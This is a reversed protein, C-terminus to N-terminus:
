LVFDTAIVNRRLESRNPRNSTTVSPSFFFFHSSFFTFINDISVKEVNYSDVTLSSFDRLIVRHKRERKRKSFSTLTCLRLRVAIRVVIRWTTLFVPSFFHFQWRRPVNLCISVIQSSFNKRKRKKQWHRQLILWLHYNHTSTRHHWYVKNSMKNTRIVVFLVYPYILWYLLFLRTKKKM